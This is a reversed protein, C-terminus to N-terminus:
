RLLEELEAEAEHYRKSTAEVRRRAQEIEIERIRALEGEDEPEEAM